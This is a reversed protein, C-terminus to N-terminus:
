SRQPMLTPIVGRGQRRYVRFDSDVTMVQSGTFLESMRVLCADALSIPVDQYRKVLRAVAASEDALSFALAVAGRRMLEMVASSGGDLRRLLHCSEAVVAECTLLPAEVEGWVTEAWAHHRDRRNLLAVLPGTDLIVRRKL